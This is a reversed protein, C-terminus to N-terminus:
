STVTEITFPPPNEIVKKVTCLGAVRALAKHYKEPFGEPVKIQISVGLLKGTKEDFTHDQVLSIGETPIDRAQCFGIVYIGACTALSSLFYMFPEPASGEGGGDRSQDTQVTFDGFTADIKKGGGHTVTITAAM